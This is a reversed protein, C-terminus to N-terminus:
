KIKRRLCELIKSIELYDEINNGNIEMTIVEEIEYNHINFKIKFEKDCKVFIFIGQGKVKMMARTLIFEKEEESYTIGLEKVLKENFKLKELFSIIKGTDKPMKRSNRFYNEKYEFCYKSIKELIDITEKLKETDFDNIEEKDRNKKKKTYFIYIFLAPLIFTSGILAYEMITLWIAKEWSGEANFYAFLVLIPLLIAATILFFKKIWKEM